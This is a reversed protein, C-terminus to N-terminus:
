RAKQIEHSTEHNLRSDPPHIKDFMDCVMDQLLDPNVKDL